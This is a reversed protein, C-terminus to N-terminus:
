MDGRMLMCALSSHDLSRLNAILISFKILSYSEAITSKHVMQLPANPLNKCWEWGYRQNHLQWLSWFLKQELYFEKIIEWTRCERVFDCPWFGINNHHHVNPVWLVKMIWRASLGSCKTQFLIHTHAVAIKNDFSIDGFSTPLQSFIWLYSLKCVFQENISAIEGCQAYNEEFHLM